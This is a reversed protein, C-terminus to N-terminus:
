RKTKIFKGTQFEEHNNVRYFYTGPQLSQGNFDFNYEGPAVGMTERHILVGLINYVQLEILNNHPTYFGISTVDTFPNPKNPLIHFDTYLRPDFGSAETVTLVVSTDNTVQTFPTSVNNVWLYPTIYIALTDVGTEVPTGYLSACYASDAYFRDSNAAYSIGEPLNTISDVVIYHVYVTLAGMSFESPPIITIVEDYYANVVADPLNMPCIQGPEDVDKCNATDPECQGSLVNGTLIAAAIFTLLNKM